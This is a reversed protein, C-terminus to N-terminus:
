SNKPFLQCKLFHPRPILFLLIIRVDANDIISGAFTRIMLAAM